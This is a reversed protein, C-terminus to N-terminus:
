DFLKKEADDIFKVAEAATGKTTSQSVSDPKNTCSSTLALGLSIFLFASTWLHGSRCIFNM